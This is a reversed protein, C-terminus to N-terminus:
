SSPHGPTGGPSGLSIISDDDRKAHTISFLLFWIQFFLILGPAKWLDWSSGYAEDPAEPRYLVAVTDGARYRAESPPQDQGLSWGAHVTAFQRAGNAQFEALASFETGWKGKGFNTGYVTKIKAPTREARALFVLRDGVLFLFAVALAISIWFFGARKVALGFITM